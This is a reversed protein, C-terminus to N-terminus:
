QKPTTRHKPDQKQKFIKEKTKAARQTKSDSGRNHSAKTSNEADQQDWGREQQGFEKLPNHSDPQRGQPSRIRNTPPSRPTKM